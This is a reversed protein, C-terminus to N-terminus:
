ANGIVLDKDETVVLGILQSGETDVMKKSVSSMLSYDDCVIPVRNDYFRQLDVCISIKMVTVLSGNACSDMPKGQIYPKCVSKIEGNRQNEYLHWEVLSFHSNIEATLKDNKLQRFRDLQDLIKEAKAKNQESTARFERLEEVKADIEANHEIAGLRKMIESLEAKAGEIRSKLATEESTRDVVVIKAKQAELASNLAKFDANANLDPETPLKALESTIEDERKELIAIEAKCTEVKDRSTKILEEADKINTKEKEARKKYEDMRSTKSAEFDKKIEEIRDADYEKGCTPCKCSNSDLVEDQVKKYLKRWNELSENYSAISNEINAVEYASINYESKKITLETKVQRQEIELKNRAEKVELGAKNRFDNIEAELRKIEAEIAENPNDTSLRALEKTADDIVKEADTKSKELAAKDDDTKATLLGDIKSNIISNDKGCSDNVKKIMSKNMSEVEDLKYGKDLLAKLEDANELESAIEADTITGTMGFLVERMKERGAKSTDATFCDPNSCFLFKDFDFGRETMDAVFDKYSKTVSNIEYSNTISSTTKGYDDSKSKYKQSKAVTVPRGNITLEIEVRSECESMGLPTINPNKNLEMDVDAFVWMISTAITSKGSGNQGKITTDGKLEIERHKCGKFNTLEIRTIEISAM